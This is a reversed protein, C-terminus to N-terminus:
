TISYVLGVSRALLYGCELDEVDVEEWALRVQDGKSIGPFKRNEEVRLAVTQNALM